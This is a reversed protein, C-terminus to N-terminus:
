KAIDHHMAVAEIRNRAHMKQCISKVYTRVTEIGIGLKDAIEKYIYGTSLLDLVQGERPSLLPKGEPVTGMGHFHRVVKRAIHSSMPSGGAHVDRVAELLKEPPSSKLLYGSAGAKLARFIRESDEYVTVMIIQVAPLMLKLRAACEIGSIGPLKIDMLVVDPRRAPIQELAKEGSSYAGVCRIDPASNLIQALQERLGPDDEVLAVSKNM